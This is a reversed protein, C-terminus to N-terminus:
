GKVAITKSARKGLKKVHKTNKRLHELKTNSVAKFKAMVNRRPPICRGPFCFHGLLWKQDQAMAQERSALPM